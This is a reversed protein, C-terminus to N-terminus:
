TKKLPHKPFKRRYFLYLYIAEIPTLIATIWMAISIGGLIGFVLFSFSFFDRRYIFASKSVLRDIKGIVGSSNSGQEISKVIKVISGGVKAKKVFNAMVLYFSFVSIITVIGLIIYIVKGTFAYLGIPLNVLFVLFTTIDCVTDIKAGLGSSRFTLRANEGDCGDFMSAFQFLITAILTNVYGGKGIFWGSALGIILNAISIHFPALKLKILRKTLFLSIHRNFNRSIFGDTPKRATNLLYKEAKKFTNKSVVNIYFNHNIDFIESDLSTFLTNMIDPSLVITKNKKLLNALKQFTRPACLSIGSYLANYEDINGNIAKVKKSKLNSKIRISDVREESSNQKSNVLLLNKNNESKIHTTNILIKPDFVLGSNLLWFHRKIEPYKNHLLDSLFLFQLKIGKKKFIKDKKLSSTTKDEKNSILIFNKVGAQNATLITRKLITLGLIKSGSNWKSQSSESNRQNSIIVATDILM